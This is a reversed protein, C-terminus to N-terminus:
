VFSSAIMWLCLSCKCISADRALISTRPQWRHDQRNEKSRQASQLVSLLENRLRQALTSWRVPISSRSAYHRLGMSSTIEKESWGSSASLVDLTLSAFRSDFGWGVVEHEELGHRQRNRLTRKMLYIALPFLDNPLSRHTRRLCSGYETNGTTWNTSVWFYPAQFRFLENDEKIQVAGNTTVHFFYGYYCLLSALHLAEALIPLRGDSRREAPPWGVPIKSTSSKCLGNPSITAPLPMPFLRSFYSRVAYPSVPPPINCPKSLANWANSNFLVRCARANVMTSRWRTAISRFTLSFFFVLLSRWISTRTFILQDQTRDVLLLCYSSSVNFM